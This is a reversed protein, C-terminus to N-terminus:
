FKLNTFLAVAKVKFDAAEMLAAANLRLWSEFAERAHVNSPDKQHREFLVKGHGVDMRRRYSKPSLAQAVEQALVEEAPTACNITPNQTHAEETFSIPRKSEWWEMAARELSMGESRIPPASLEPSRHLNELYSWETRGDSRDERSNRWSQLPEQSSKPCFM